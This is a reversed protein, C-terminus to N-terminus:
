LTCPVSCCGTPPLPRLLPVLGTLQTRWPCRLLRTWFRLQRKLTTTQLSLPRCYPELIEAVNFDYNTDCFRPKFILDSKVPYSCNSILSIEALCLANPISIMQIPFFSFRIYHLIPSKHKVNTHALILPHKDYM